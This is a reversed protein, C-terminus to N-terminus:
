GRITSHYTFCFKVYPNHKGVHPVIIKKGVKGTRMLSTPTQSVNTCRNERKPGEQSVANLGEEKHENVGKKVTGIKKILSVKRVIHGDTM